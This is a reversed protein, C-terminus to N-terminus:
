LGCVETVFCSVSVTVRDHPNPGLSQRIKVASFCFRLLWLTSSSQSTSVATVRHSIVCFVSQYWSHCSPQYCLVRVSILQSVIASLVPCPSIDATVRHSIVFPVFQYWSHCSPQYCLLRVSILQCLPQYYLARVSILYSVIASLVPYPSIDATVRHSIVCSVSQYLSHCSPQYCLARVSILQWLIASLVPCPSIDASVIASLVPCPSTDATIRHSIDCPMSQYWSVSPQYCLACDPILQSVIASLVPCQYWCPISFSTRRYSLDLPSRPFATSQLVTLHSSNRNYSLIFFGFIHM